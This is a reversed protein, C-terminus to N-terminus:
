GEQEFTHSLSNQDGLTVKPEEYVHSINTLDGLAVSKPDISGEVTM